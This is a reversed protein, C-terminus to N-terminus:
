SVLLNESIKPFFKGIKIFFHVFYKFFLTAVRKMIIALYTSLKAM